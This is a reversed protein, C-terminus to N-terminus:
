IAKSFGKLEPIDNISGKKVKRSRIYDMICLLSTFMNKADIKFFEM